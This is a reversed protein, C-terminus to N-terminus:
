GVQDTNAPPYHGRVLEVKGAAVQYILDCGALPGDKHSVIVITMNGEIGEIDRMLAAETCADLASTAEDLFLVAPSRYLARAVGLRQREGGSLRSGGEGIMSDLGHPLSEVWGLLRARSLALLVARDDIEDDPVGFAVNRRVSDDTLFISQPVYGAKGEWRGVSLLCLNRDISASGSSPQVFGLLLDLLTSKGSGSAGVIGVMSGRPIEVSADRLIPPQADGHNFTVRDLALVKWSEIPSGRDGTSPRPAACEELRGCIASIAERYYDLSGSCAVVKSLTPALRLAAASFAALTGVMVGGPGYQIHTVVIVMGIAAIAIFELWVRPIQGVFTFRAQAERLGNVLQSFKGYVIQHAGYVRIERTGRFAESVQRLRESELAHRRAGWRKMSPQLMLRYTFASVGLVAAAAISGLPDVWTVVGILAASLILDVMLSSVLMVGHGYVSAGTTLDRVFESSRVATVRDPNALFGAMIGECAATEARASLQAQLWSVATFTMTKVLYLALFVIFLGAGLGALWREVSAPLMGAKTSPGSEAFGSLCSLVLPVLAVTAMEIASAAIALATSVSLLRIVPKPLTRIVRVAIQAQPLVPINPM